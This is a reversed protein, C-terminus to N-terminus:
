LIKGFTVLNIDKVLDLFLAFLLALGNGTM